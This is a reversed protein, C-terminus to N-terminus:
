LCVSLNKYDSACKKKKQRVGSHPPKNVRVKRKRMIDSTTPPRLQDHLALLPLLVHLLVVVVVLVAM